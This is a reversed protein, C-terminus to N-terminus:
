VDVGLARTVDGCNFRILAGGRRRRETGEGEEYLGGEKRVGGDALEGMDGTNYKHSNRLSILYRITVNCNSRTHM